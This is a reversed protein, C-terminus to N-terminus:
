HSTPYTHSRSSSCQFIQQILSHHLQGPLAPPPLIHNTEANKGTRVATTRLKRPLFVAISGDERNRFFHNVHVEAAGACPINLTNKSERYPLIAM